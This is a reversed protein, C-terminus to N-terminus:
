ETEAERCRDRLLEGALDTDPPICARVEKRVRGLIDRYPELVVRGKQVSLVLTGGQPMGIEARVDAPILINGDTDMSVPHM